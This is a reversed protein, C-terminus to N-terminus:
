PTQRHNRSQPDPGPVRAFQPRCEPVAPFARAHAAAAPCHTRLGAHMARPFNACCCGTVGQVREAFIQTQVWISISVKRAVCRAHECRRKLFDKWLTPDKPPAHRITCTIPLRGTVCTTAGCALTCCGRQSNGTKLVGAPFDKTTGM